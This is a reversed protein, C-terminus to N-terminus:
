ILCLQVSDGHSVPKSDPPIIILSNAKSLGVIDASGHWTVPAVEDKRKDYIAPIYLQRSAKKIKGKGLTAKTYNPELSHNATIRAIAERIFIETIVFSSVPNGPLAFILKKEAGQKIGFVFPKGPKIAVTDFLMKVGLKKLVPEVIDYDGASVGGTIILIDRKLGERIKATLDKITDKAIKLKEPQLGFQKIQAMLLYSNSNRIQAGHPKKDVEVLEDGTTLIAVSPKYFVKLKAKGVTALASIRVANVLSGKSLVKDGKRLDEGKYCINADQETPELFSIHKGNEKTVEKMVVTDAGKPVPAGTMIKITKGKSVKKNSERGAAVTDILELETPTKKIDAYKVAFGDMASKDFPPLDIDSYIDEALVYGISELLPKTIVKKEPLNKLIINLAEKVPIM